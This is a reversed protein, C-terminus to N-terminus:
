HDYTKRNGEQEEAIKLLITNALDQAEIALEKLEDLLQEM